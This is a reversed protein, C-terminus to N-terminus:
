IENIQLLSHGILSNINQNILRKPTYYDNTKQSNIIIQKIFELFNLMERVSFLILECKLVNELLEKSNTAHSWSIATKNSVSSDGLSSYAM